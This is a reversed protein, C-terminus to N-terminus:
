FKVEVKGLDDRGAETGGGGCGPGEHPLHSMRPNEIKAVSRKLTIALRSYRPLKIAM